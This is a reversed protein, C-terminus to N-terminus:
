LTAMGTTIRRSSCAGGTSRIRTITCRSTPSRRAAPGPSACYPATETFTAYKASALTTPRTGGVTKTGRGLTSEASTRSSRRAAGGTATGDASSSNASTRVPKACRRLISRRDNTGISPSRVGSTSAAEPM